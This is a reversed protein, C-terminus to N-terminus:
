PVAVSADAAAAGDELPGEFDFSSIVDVEDAVSSVFNVSSRAEIRM